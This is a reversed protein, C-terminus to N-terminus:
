LPACDLAAQMAKASYPGLDVMGDLRAAVIRSWDDSALVVQAGAGCDRVGGSIFDDGIRHNTLGPLRGLEEFRGELLAPSGIREFRLFVLEALLHPRDVYAIEVRGDGDFDAVGAPALWRHTQGIFATAAVKGYRGYVALSAGLDLDTEVVLVEQAGDGDLDVVRTAVDEFVRHQPLVITTTLRRDADICPRVCPDLQLEMGGWEIADGLVGHDYRLTPLSFEATLVSYPTAVEGQAASAFLAFAAALRM